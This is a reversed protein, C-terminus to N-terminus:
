SSDDTIRRVTDLWMHKSLLCIDDRLAEVAPICVRFLHCGERETELAVPLERDDPQCMLMETYEQRQERDIERIFHLNGM